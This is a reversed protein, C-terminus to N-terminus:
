LEKALLNLFLGVDTVLGLVQGTGRDSLKTMVAPNIDVCVCKVQAPLMNGVAISHLMSALMLVMNAGKLADSYKKQAQVLDTIVEPLPGDDRLSGALVFPVNNKVIEYMIGSKLIGRRVANRIGGCRNIENIAAIHNRHGAEVAKGTAMDVGLSTGFLSMEIDHVAIANSGLLVNVYGKRILEALDDRGGTHIVVPGAVVVIKGDKKKIEKMMDALKRVAIEVKRESSIEKGMFSFERRDREKFEPVVKVGDYGCVIANGKKVDRLLECSAQDGDVVIAADMRQNKVKRWQGNLRVYTACNSTSYFDSPVAGNKTSKKLVASKVDAAFCGLRHLRTMIADFEKRSFAKVVITLSSFDQNTRGIDFQKIEFEGNHIVITDMIEAMLGSDILHGKAEMQKVFEAM